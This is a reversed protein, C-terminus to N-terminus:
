LNNSQGRMPAHISVYEYEVGKLIPINYGLVPCLVRDLAIM